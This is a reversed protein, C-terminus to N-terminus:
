TGTARASSGAGNKCPKSPPWAPPLVPQRSSSSAVPGALARSASSAPVRRGGARSSSSLELLGAGWVAAAQSAAPGAGQLGRRKQGAGGLDRRRSAQGALEMCAGQEPQVAGTQEPWVWAGSFVRGYLVVGGREQSKSFQPGTSQADAGAKAKLWSEWCLRRPKRKKNEKLGPGRYSVSAELENYLCLHGQAESEGAEVEKLAPILRTRWM